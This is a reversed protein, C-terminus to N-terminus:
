LTCLTITLRYDSPERKAGVLLPKPREAGGRRFPVTHAAKPPLAFISLLCVHLWAGSEPQPKILKIPSVLM